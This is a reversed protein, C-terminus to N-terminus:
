FDRKLRLFEVCGSGDGGGGGGRRRVGELLRKEGSAGRRVGGGLGVKGGKGGSDKLWGEGERKGEEKKWLERAKGSERKWGRGGQRKLDM